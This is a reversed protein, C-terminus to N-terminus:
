ISISITNVRVLTVLMAIDDAGFSHILLVRTLIRLVVALWSVGLFCIMTIAAPWLNPVPQIPIGDTM